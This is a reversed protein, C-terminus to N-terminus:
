TDDGIGTSHVLNEATGPIVLAGVNPGDTTGKVFIEKELLLKLKKETVSNTLTRRTMNNLHLEKRLGEPNSTSAFTLCLSERLHGSFM